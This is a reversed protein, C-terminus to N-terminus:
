KINRRGDECGPNTCVWWEKLSGDNNYEKKGGYLLTLGDPDYLSARVMALSCKPCNKM